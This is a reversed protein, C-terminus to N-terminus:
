SDDGKVSIMQRRLRMDGCQGRGERAPQRALLGGVEMGLVNSVEVSYYSGVM